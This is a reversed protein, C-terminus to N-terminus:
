SVVGDNGRSEDGRSRGRTEEGGRSRGRTEDDAGLPLATPVPPVRGTSPAPGAKKKWFSMRFRSRSSKRALSRMTEIITVGSGNKTDSLGPDTATTAITHESTAPLTPCSQSATTNTRTPSPNSPLQTLPSVTTPRETSDNSMISTGRTSPSLPIKSTTASTAQSAWDHSGPASNNSETTDSTRQVNHHKSEPRPTPTQQDRFVVDTVLSHGVYVGNSKQFDHAGADQSPHDLLGPASVTAYSLQLQSPTPKSSRRARSYVPPILPEGEIAGNPEAIAKEDPGNSLGNSSTDQFDNETIGELTAAMKLGSGHSGSSLLDGLKSSISGTRDTSQQNAVDSPFALSMARPSFTGDMASDDSNKRQQADEIRTTWIKINKHLEDVTFQMAPMIDTVGQFLPIAFMNMFNLQSKGLEVTERTPTAFLASPIGLDAEM